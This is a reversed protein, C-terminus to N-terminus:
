TPGTDKSNKGFYVLDRLPFTFFLKEKRLEM